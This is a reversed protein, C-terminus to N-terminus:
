RRKVYNRTQVHFDKILQFCKLLGRTEFSSVASTKICGIQKNGNSRFRM